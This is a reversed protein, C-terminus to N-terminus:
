RGGLSGMTGPYSFPLASPNLPPGVGDAPVGTEILEAIEGGGAGSVGTSSDGTSGSSLRGPRPGIILDLFDLPSILPANQFAADAAVTVLANLGLRPPAPSFSCCLLFLLM